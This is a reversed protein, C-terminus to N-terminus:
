LLSNYLEQYKRAVIAETYTDLVKQRAQEALKMTDTNKLVWDIGEALSTASRYDAVFGNIQHDIMDPIGGTRFGVVPTGSAMAELVTNPLNDELSPVAMVDAAAYAEAIHTSDSLKGLNHVTVSLGDYAGPQAKGFVLIELEEDAAHLKQVAEKFFSFGKRPDQTNAGVFLVLKKDAPLGLKQRLQPKHRPTFLKTDIPYPIVLTPLDKTLAASQTIQGLWQSPAVFAVPANEFLARKQEFVQFSLDYLEPKALYPCARCHSLYHECGRSYHCGGTSAWMDHLTWVIPKGMSFLRQLGPLSLFGFNIWHLNIVSAQQVLPHQHLPLGVAAPSFAFRASRDKEHPLFSLREASFRAWFLKNKWPTDAYATVGAAPKQARYVLMQADLGQNRQAQHIRSAAVAAGGELQFTSLHLIM